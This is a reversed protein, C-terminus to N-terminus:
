IMTFIKKTRFPNKLKKLLPIRNLAVVEVEVAAVEAAAVRQLAAKELQHMKLNLVVV